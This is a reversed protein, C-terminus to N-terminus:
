RGGFATVGPMGSLDVHHDLPPVLLTRCEFVEDRLHARADAPDEHEPTLGTDALAGQEVMGGQDRAPGPAHGDQPHGSDLRLGVERVGRQVPQENGEQLLRVPQRGGLFPCQPDHAAQLLSRDGVTEQDPQRRQRQQRLGGRPLRQQTAHVVGLPEVPLRKVHQGEDAAPDVGLPDAQQEGNALAAGAQLVQRDGLDGTQLLPVCEFEQTRHRGAREVGADGYADDGRGGPVRQRQDVEAPLQRGILQQAAHRQGVRQGHALPQLIVIEPLHSPQRPLRPCPQQEGGGFRTAVEAVDSPGGLRQPDLGLGAARGLVQPQQRQPGGGAEPVRQDTGGHVAAGRAHLPSADVGCQGRGGGPGGVGVPPGPVQGGGRHFGVFADGGLEFVGRVLGASAAAVRGADGEQAPRGLQRGFAGAADFSRQRRGLGGEGRSRRQLRLGQQVADVGRRDVVDAPAPCQHHARARQHRQATLSRERLRGEETQVGREGEALLRRVQGTVSQQVRDLVGDAGLVQDPVRRRGLDGPGGLVKQRARVGRGHAVQYQAGEGHQDGVAILLGNGM